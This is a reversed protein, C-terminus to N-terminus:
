QMILVYTQAHPQMLNYPVNLLFFIDAILYILAYLTDQFSAVM